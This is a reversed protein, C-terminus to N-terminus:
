KIEPRENAIRKLGEVLDRWSISRGAGKVEIWPPLLGGRTLILFGDETEKVGGLECAGNYLRCSIGLRGYSYEQFYRLFGGSLAASAGGGLLGLNDVARQSIRHRTADDEPTALEAEFYVPQWAQLELAHVKGALRGEIRGFSFRDTLQALDINRIDVDAHLVPVRGFLEDVRLNRIVVSGDFVGVDIRGGVELRGAHWKLGDIRGTLRGSMVPWGLAQTLDAMSIPTLEGDLRVTMDPRGADSVGLSSIRLEGDLIPVDRWSVVEVAGGASSLVLEGPGLNLRYVGIGQWVLTSGAPEAGDHVRLSGDLGAVSFRGNGDYAHLDRIDLSLERLAGDSIRAAAGLTGVAELASFQTGLLFPQLYVRYLAGASADQLRLDAERVKWTDALEIDAGLHAEVVDPHSLDLRAVHLRRGDASWRADVGFHIPQTDAELAIGPRLGQLEVGPELYLLGASIRGDARVSGGDTRDLTFSFELSLDEASSPGLFGLAETRIVGEAHAMGRDTGQARVAIDLWGAPDSYGAPWLSLSELYNRLDPLSLGKGAFEVQWMERSRQLTGEIVANGITVPSVSIQLAETARDWAFSLRGGVAGRAPHDGSFVGEPCLIVVADLRGNGCRVEVRDLIAPGPLELRAAFLRLEAAGTDRLMLVVSVGAAKFWGADIAELDLGVQAGRVPTAAPYLLVLLIALYPLTRM